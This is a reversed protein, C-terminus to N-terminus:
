LGLARQIDVEETLVKDHVFFGAQSQTFETSSEYVTKMGYSVLLGNSRKQSNVSVSQIVGQKTILVFDQIAQVRTRKENNFHTIKFEIRRVGDSEISSEGNIM